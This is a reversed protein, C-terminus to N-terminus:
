IEEFNNASKLGNKNIFYIRTSDEEPDKLASDGWPLNEIM